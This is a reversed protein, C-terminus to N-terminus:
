NLLAIFEDENIVKIGLEEAKALKSGAAEWITLGDHLSLPYARTYIGTPATM